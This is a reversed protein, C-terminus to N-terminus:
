KFLKDKFRGHNKDTKVYLELQKLLISYEVTVFAKSLRIFVGLTYKSNEFSETIQNVLQVVAHDISHGNQFDFQKSYINNNKILYKYLHNCKIRELIKFLCILVSIPRYSSVDSSNEGMYILTVRAIKLDDPFVDKDISLNFVYKKLSACLM